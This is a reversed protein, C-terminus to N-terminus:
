AVAGRPQEGLRPLVLDDDGPGNAVERRAGVEGEFGQTGGAEAPHWAFPLEELCRRRFSVSSPSRGNLLRCWSRTRDSPPPAARRARTRRTRRDSPRRETPPAGRM